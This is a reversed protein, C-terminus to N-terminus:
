LEGVGRQPRHSARSAPPEGSTRSPEDEFVRAPAGCQVAAASPRSPASQHYVERRVGRAPLREGAHSRSAPSGREEAAQGREPETRQARRGAPGLQGGAVSVPSFLALARSQRRRTERWLWIGLVVYLVDSWAGAPNVVRECLNQECWDVNPPTFGSRPCGWPLSPALLEAMGPLAPGGDRERSARIGGEGLYSRGFIPSRGVGRIM